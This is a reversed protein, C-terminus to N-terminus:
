VQLCQRFRRNLSSRNRIFSPQNGGVRIKKLLAERNGSFLPRCNDIIDSFFILDVIDKSTNFNWRLETGYFQTHAAQYRGNPYSRLRDQGGLPHASGNKNAKITNQAKSIQATCGTITPYLICTDAQTETLGSSILISKM